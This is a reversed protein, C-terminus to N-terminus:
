LEEYSRGEGTKNLYFKENQNLARNWAGVYKIQGKISNNNEYLAGLTMYADTQPIGTYQDEAYLIGNIYLKSGQSGWQIIIHYWVNTLYKFESDWVFSDEGGIFSFYPAGNDVYGVSMMDLNTKAGSFLVHKGYLIESFKVFLSITGDPAMNNRLGMYDAGEGDFFLGEGSVLSCGIPIGASSVHSDSTNELLNFWVVMGEKINLDLEGLNVEENIGENDIVSLAAVGSPNSYLRVSYTKGVKLWDRNFSYTKVTDTGIIELYDFNIGDIASASFFEAIQISEASVSIGNLTVTSGDVILSGEITEGTESYYFNPRDSSTTEPITINTQEYDIDKKVYSYNFVYKKGSTESTIASVDFTLSSKVEFLNTSFNFGEEVSSLDEEALGYYEIQGGADKGYFAFRNNTRLAYPINVSTSFSTSRPNSFNNYGPTGSYYNEQTTEVWSGTSNIYNVIELSSLLDASKLLNNKVLGASADVSVTEFKQGNENFLNNEEKECSTVFVFLVLSLIAFLNKM